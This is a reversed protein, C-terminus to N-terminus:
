WGCDGIYLLLINYLTTSFMGATMKFHTYQNVTHFVTDPYNSVETNPTDKGTTNTTGNSPPPTKPKPPPHMKLKNILYMMERDLKRQQEEFQYSLVPPNEHPPTAELEALSTM